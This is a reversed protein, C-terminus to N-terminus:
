EKTVIEGFARDHLEPFPMWYKVGPINWGDYDVAVDKDVIHGFAIHYFPGVNHGNVKSLLVIVEEDMPPLSETVDHWGFQSDKWAAMAMASDYCEFSSDYSLGFGYSQSKEIAIKTAKEENTM